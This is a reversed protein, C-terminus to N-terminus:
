GATKAFQFGVSFVRQHDGAERFGGRSVPRRRRVRHERIRRAGASRTAYVARRRQLRTQCRSSDDWAIPTARDTAQSRARSAGQNGAPLRYGMAGRAQALTVSRQARRLSDRQCQAHHHANSSSIVTCFARPTYMLVPMHEGEIPGVGTALYVPWSRGVEGATVLKRWSKRAKAKAHSTSRNPSNVVLA